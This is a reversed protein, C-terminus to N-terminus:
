SQGGDSSRLIVRVGEKERHEENIHRLVAAKLEFGRGCPECVFECRGQKWLEPGGDAGTVRGGPCEIIHKALSKPFRFRQKCFRCENAKPLQLEVHDSRHRRRMHTSLHHKETFGRGCLECMYQCSQASDVTGGEIQSSHKSLIHKVLWPKRRLGKGCSACYFKEEVVDETGVTTNAGGGKRDENAPEAGHRKEMHKRLGRRWRFEKGCMECQYQKPGVVSEMKPKSHMKLRHVNLYNVHSFPAGCDACEHRGRSDHQLKTHRFMACVSHYTYSCEECRYPRAGTHTNLHQRLTLEEQFQRGCVHCRFRQLNLHVKLIHRTLSLKQHYSQECRTCTYTTKKYHRKLHHQFALKFAAVFGCMDCGFRPEGNVVVRYRELDMMEWNVPLTGNVVRVGELHVVIEHRKAEFATAFSKSCADCKYPAEIASLSASQEKATNSVTARVSSDADKDTLEVSELVRVSSSSSESDCEEAASLEIEEAMLSSDLGRFRTDEKEESSVILEAAVDSEINRTLSGCQGSDVPGLLEIGSMSPEVICKNTRRQSNTALGKSRRRRAYKKSSIVVSQVDLSNSLIKSIYNHEQSNVFENSRQVAPASKQTDTLDANEECSTNAVPKSQLDAKLSFTSDIVLCSNSSRNFPFFDYQPRNLTTRPKWVGLKRQSGSSRTAPSRVPAASSGATPPSDQTPLLRTNSSASSSGANSKPLQQPEDSGAKASSRESCSELKSKELPDPRLTLRDQSSLKVTCKPAYGLKAEEINSIRKIAPRIHWDPPMNRKRSSGCGDMELKKLSPSPVEPEPLVASFGNEASAVTVGQPKNKSPSEKTTGPLVASQVRIVQLFTQGVPQEATCPGPSKRGGEPCYDSTKLISNPVKLVKVKLVAPASPSTASLDSREEPPSAPKKAFFLTGLSNKAGGRFTVKSSDRLSVKYAPNSGSVTNVGAADSKVEGHFRSRARVMKAMGDPGISGFGRRVPYVRLDRPITSAESRKLILPSFNCMLEPEAPLSGDEASRPGSEETRSYRCFLACLDFSQFPAPIGTFVDAKSSRNGLVVLLTHGM